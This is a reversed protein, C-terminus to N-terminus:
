TPLQSKSLGTANNTLTGKDGEGGGGLKARTVIPQSLYPRNRIAGPCCVFPRRVLSAPLPRLRSLATNSTTLM